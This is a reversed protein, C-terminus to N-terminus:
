SKVKTRSKTCNKSRRTPTQTRRLSPITLQMHPRLLYQPLWCFPLYHSLQKKRTEDITQEEIQIAKHGSITGNIKQLENDCFKFEKSDNFLQKTQELLLNIILEKNSHHFLFM